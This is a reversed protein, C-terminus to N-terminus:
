EPAFTGKGSVIRELEAILELAKPGGISTGMMLKRLRALCINVQHATKDPANVTNPSSSPHLTQRIFKATLPHYGAGALVEKWKQIREQPTKWRRLEIAQAENMPLRAIDRIGSLDTMVQASDILEYARPRSLALVSQVYAEFTPHTQRYLRADRIEMLAKGVAFFTRLGQRITAECSELRCHEESTLPIIIDRESIPRLFPQEHYIRGDLRKGAVHKDVRFMLREGKAMLVRREQPKMSKLLIPEVSNSPFYAGNIGNAKAHKPDPSWCGWQKFFFRVGADECKRHISRVWDPNIPRANGGSEGGVIVWDLHKLWEPKLNVPGLLPEMSLGHYRAPVELLQSIRGTREQDEVTTMLCVNPCGEGWYSPLMAAINEPRKTLILWDLFPTKRVLAWLDARWDTDVEDDFVDAMSACFVRQRQRSKLAEKNWAMPNKWCAPGTRQRPQGKGWKVRGTRKGIQEAYCHACGPSVKTCGIWPNFTHDTWEIASNKGM